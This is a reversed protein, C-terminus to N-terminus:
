SSHGPHIIGSNVAGSDDIGDLSFDGAKNADACRVSEILLHFKELLARGIRDSEQAGKRSTSFIRLGDILLETVESAVPEPHFGHLWEEVEDLIQRRLHDPL